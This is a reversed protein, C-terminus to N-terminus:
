LLQENLSLGLQKCIGRLVDDPVSARYDSASLGCQRCSVRVEAAKALVEMRQFADECTPGTSLIGHSAWLVAAYLAAKEASAKALDLSGPVMPGVYGVGEPVVMVTETMARWFCNSVSADDGDILKGLVIAATPHAHYVIRSRRDTAKGRAELILLHGNLESTPRGGGDFGFVTRWASGSIDLEIVGLARAGAAKLGDMRCGAATVLVIEGAMDPVPQQLMTWEGPETELFPAIATRQEDTLWLSANGGHAEHWGLAAGREAMAIFESVFDLHLAGAKAVTKQASAVTSRGVALADDLFGM